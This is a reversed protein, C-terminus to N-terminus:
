QYGFTIQLLYNCTSQQIPQAATCKPKTGSLGYTQAPTVTPATCANTAVTGPTITFKCEYEHEYYPAPAVDTTGSYFISIGGSMAPTITLPTATSQGGNAATAGIPFWVEPMGGTTTPPDYTGYIPFPAQNTLKVTYTATQANASHTAVFGLLLAAFTAAYRM